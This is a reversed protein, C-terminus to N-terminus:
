FKNTRSFTYATVLGVIAGMLHSEWSVRDDLSLLGYAMGGYSFIVIASIIVSKFNRKFLGYFVLFSALAYILGSAGIHYFPRGFVWVLMNTFFYAQLFVRLAIAPFFFFLSGGLVILPISNSMLHNFNGHILPAMVVGILGTLSRPYIGLYGFDVELYFEIAFVLWMFFCLRLPPVIGSKHM